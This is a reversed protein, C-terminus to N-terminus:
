AVGQWQTYLDAIEAPTKVNNTTFLHQFKGCLPFNTSSHTLTYGNVWGYGLGEFSGIVGSNGSSATGHLVGDVYATLTTTSVKYTVVIQHAGVTLAPGLAHIDGAGHRITIVGNDLYWVLGAAGDSTRFGGGVIVQIAPAAIGLFTDQYDLLV